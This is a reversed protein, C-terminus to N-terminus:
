GKITLERPIGQSVGFENAMFVEVRRAIGFAGWTRYRANAQEFYTLSKEREGEELFFYGALENAIAEEQIFKHEHAAAISAEYCIAAM